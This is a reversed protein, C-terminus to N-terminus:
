LDPNVEWYTFVVETQHTPDLRTNPLHGTQHTIVMIGVGILLIPDFRFNPDLSEVLGLLVPNMTKNINPFWFWFQINKLVLLVFSYGSILWYDVVPKSTLERFGSGFWTQNEFNSSLSINTKFFQVWIRSNHELETNFRLWELNNNWIPFQFNKTFSFFWGVSTCDSEFFYHSGFCSSAKCSELSEM